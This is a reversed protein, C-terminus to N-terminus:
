SGSAQPTQAPPPQLFPTSLDSTVLWQGDSSKHTVALWAGKDPQGPPVGTVTWRGGITASDASLWHLFDTTVSLAVDLKMKENMQMEMSVMKEVGGKGTVLTGDPAVAQYDDATLVAIGAADGANYAAVYRDPLARIATEDEATGQMVTTTSSGECAVMACVAAVGGFLLLTRRAM